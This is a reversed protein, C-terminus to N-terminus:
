NAHCSSQTLLVLRFETAECGEVVLMIGRRSLHVITQFDPSGILLSNSIEVCLIAIVPHGESFVLSAVHCVSLESLSLADDLWFLEGVALGERILSAASASTASTASSSAIKLRASILGDVPDSLAFDM